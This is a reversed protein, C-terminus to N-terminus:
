VLLTKYRHVEGGTFVSRKICKNKYSATRVASHVLRFTTITYDPKVVRKRVTVTILGFEQHVVESTDPWYAITQEFLTLHTHKKTACVYQVENIEEIM